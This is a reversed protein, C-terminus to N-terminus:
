QIKQNHLIIASKKLEPTKGKIEGTGGKGFQWQFGAQLGVGTRGVNRIVAQLFGSFRDGFKKNFGLGYQIYGRDMHVHPLIVNGARGGVYQNINYMYQLTGYISFTEKEWILNVGPAINIGNLMGSMMGMQGFDSHWNEKGFFNYAVLFNPQLSWDRAFRWNYATKIAGGAFYGLTDDNGRPTDMDNNYIGGYALAGIMFNNKYWTGMAGLQGGNQYAGYGKWYQHAGNYAVYATPMFQWGHKLEKLGFDAGIITGYANNGVNLGRNMNLKEFTGYMKVWLGGDKRSYQYPPFLDGASALRNPNSAIYDNGKFGQDVMTHNFLMDDISLQNQYQALKTIQGRFVGPNFRNLDFTYNGRGASHLGYWGIPTFVEKNTTTFDITHNANITGKFIKDLSYHKDIPADWGYVDGDLKWDNIHLTANADNTASITAGDSGFSDYSYKDGKNHRAYIDMNFNATTDDDTFGGNGIDFASAVAYNERGDNIGNILGATQLNTVSFGNSLSNYVSSEDITMNGNSILVSDAMSLTTGNLMYLSGGTQSYYPSTGGLATATAGTTQTVGDLTLSVIKNDAASANSLNVDGLWTDAGDLTVNAVIAPVYAPDTPDGSANAADAGTINLASGENITVAAAQAITGSSVALTSHDANNAANGVTVTGAAVNTQILEENAGNLDYTYHDLTMTSGNVVNLTEDGDAMTLAVSNAISNAITLTSGNTLALSGDTIASPNNANYALELVTNNLTAKGGTQNYKVTGDTLVSNAGTFDTISLDGTGSLAVEGSWTDAGEGTANLIAVGASQNLKGNNNIAVAVASAIDDAANNLNLTGAGLASGIVLNGGDADLGGTKNNSGLITMTGGDLDVLGAWTDNTGDIVIGNGAATSSIQLTSGDAISLKAASTIESNNILNLASNGSITLESAGTGVNTVQATNTTLGNNITLKGLTDDSDDSSDTGTNGLVVVSTGSIYSDATNLVLSGGEDITLTGATQIFTQTATTTDDRGSLTLNGGALNIAGEWTDANDITVGAASTNNINLTNGSEIKVTTGTAITDAGTALTVANIVNLTGGNSNLTKGAATSVGDLSLTGGTQTINGVTWNDSSDIYADAGSNVVIDGKLTLNVAQAIIDDDGLLVTSSNITLNGGQANLIGTKNAGEDVRDDDYINSLILTGGNELKVTGNWDVQGHNSGTGGDLTVTGGQIDLTKGSDISVLANGDGATITGGTLTLDEDINLTGGTISTNGGLTQAGKINVTGNTQELTGNQTVGSLNLVGTGNVTVKGNANWVDSTGSGGDLTLEGTGLTLTANGTAAGITVRAAEGISTGAGATLNGSQLNLVSAGTTTVTATNTIGNNVVLTGISNNNGLNVTGNTISGLVDTGDVNLSLSGGDTINLVAAEVLQEYQSVGSNQLNFTGQNTVLGTISGNGSLTYSGTNAGSTIGKNIVSGVAGGSHAVTSNADNNNVSTVNGGTINLTKNNTIAGTTGDGQNTYTGSNTVAGMTGSNVAAANNNVHTTGNVIGNSASNTFTGSIVDVNNAITANNQVDGNIEIKGTTSEYNNINYDISGGNFAVTGKNYLQVNVSDATVFTQKGGTVTLVTDSIISTNGNFTNNGSLHLGGGTASITSGSGLNTGGNLYLNGSSMNITGFVRDGTTDSGTNLNVTGGTINLRGTEAIALNVADEIYSGSAINLNGNNVININGNNAYLADNGNPLNYINLTGGANITLTDSGDDTNTWFEYPGSGRGNGDKDVVDLGSNGADGSVWTNNSGDGGAQLVIDSASAPSTTAFTLAGALAGVMLATLLKNKGM